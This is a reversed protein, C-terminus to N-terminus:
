QGVHHELPPCKKFLGRIAILLLNQRGQPCIHVVSKEGCCSTDGQGEVHESMSTDRKARFFNAADEEDRMTRVLDVRGTRELMGKM